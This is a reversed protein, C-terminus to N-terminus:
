FRRIAKAIHAPHQVVHGAGRHSAHGHAHIGAHHTPVMLAEGWGTLAGIAVLTSDPLVGAIRDFFRQLLTGYTSGGTTDFSAGAAEDPQAYVVTNPPSIPAQPRTGFNILLGYAGNAGPGNNATSVRIYFGQGPPVSISTTTTAGFSNPASAVAVANLSGNYIVFKPSFSSLNNSQVSITMTGSTGSPTTVFYWNSDSASAIHATSVAVQGSGDILPTVNTATSYATNGSSGAAAGYISQIGQIDDSSLSQKVGNYYAYMVANSIASHSLGLAHGIEHIAVTELDFDSNIHWAQSTNLAIDGALTGGNISPPLFCEALINSALATGAIRIDGANPDDQQNGAFGFPVGDDSVRALNIQAVAEWVAAAKQFQLQWNATTFGLNGMTQFLNSPSGGVDTGDPVFSYTIRSSYAWQGGITAYLLKRDELAEATPRIARRSRERSFRV